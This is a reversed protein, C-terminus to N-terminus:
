VYYGEGYYDSFVLEIKIQNYLKGILEFFEVDITNDVFEVEYIINIYFEQIFSYDYRPLMLNSIDKLKGKEQAKLFRTMFYKIRNSINSEFLGRNLDDLKNLFYKFEKNILRMFQYERKFDSAYEPIKNNASKILNQLNQFNSFHTSTGTKM